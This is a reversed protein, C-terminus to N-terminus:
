CGHDCLYIIDTDCTMALIHEWTNFPHHVHLRMMDVQGRLELLNGSTLFAKLDDKIISIVDDINNVSEVDIVLQFGWFIQSSIQFIRQKM